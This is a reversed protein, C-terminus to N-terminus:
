LDDRHGAVDSKVQLVVHVLRTLNLVVDHDVVELM